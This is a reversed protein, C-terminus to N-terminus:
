VHIIEVLALEALVAFDDDQTIVPMANAVAIAAIWLDNVNVRRKEEALRVRMRAWQVAAPASVVLPELAALAELTELRAARIDTSSAALVGAQLEALTIVSVFAEDPLAEVRLPRRQERAIFVSTDLLGRTV